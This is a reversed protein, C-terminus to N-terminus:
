QTWLGCGIHRQQAVREQLLCYAASAAASFARSWIVLMRRNKLDAKSAPYMMADHKIHFPAACGRGHNDGLAPESAYCQVVLASSGTKAILLSCGSGAAPLVHWVVAEVHWPQMMVMMM